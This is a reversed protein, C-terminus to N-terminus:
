TFYNLLTLIIEKELFYGGTNGLFECIGQYHLTLGCIQEQSTFYYFVTFLFGAFVSFVNFLVKKKAFISVVVVVAALFVIFSQVCCSFQLVAWVYVFSAIKVYFYDFSYLFCKYLGVFILFVGTYYGVYLKYSVLVIRLGYFLITFAKLVEDFYSQSRLKVDPDVNLIFGITYM